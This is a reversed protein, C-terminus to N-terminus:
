NVLINKRNRQYEVTLSLSTTVYMLWNWSPTLLRAESFNVIVIILLMQMPWYDEPKKAVSIIRTLAMVFFRVFGAAFTLFGLFGLELLLELFGNHANSAWDYTARLKSAANSTWFGSFGYGLWPRELIKSIVLEWLDSRGNFTLDKGSTGVVAEANNLLLISSIMLLMLTSTIMIVQLKYNTKKLSRYFPLLLIMTLLITLSTTSRSLIILCISIGCLAWMLWRYRHGSLALHLFVGASWAMMYGLENKHGYIGSWMGLLEPSEHIYGPVFASFLMSLSAAVGLAWAILKIQEKLPYRMALYIALFYIRILGRLYTLSSSLDESWLLSFIVIALLFFQLPSRTIVFIFGKWYLIIFYFLILYSVINFLTDLKDGGLTSMSVEQAPHITLAGVAILLLLITLIKETLKVKM